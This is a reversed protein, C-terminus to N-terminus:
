RSSPAAHEGDVAVLVEGRRYPVGRDALADDLASDVPASLPYTRGDIVAVAGNELVLTDVHDAIQPFEAELEVGIRGTVLVVVLGNRRVQDIADVAEPSMDGRSTLTDDLDVAVVQFFAM